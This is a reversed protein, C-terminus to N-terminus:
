DTFWLGLMYLGTLRPGKREGKWIHSWLLLLPQVAAHHGCWPGGSHVPSACTCTLLNALHSLQILWLSECSFKGISAGLNTFAALKRDFVISPLPPRAQFEWSFWQDVMFAQSWHHCLSLYILALYSLVTPNSYQTGMPCQPTVTSCIGLASYHQLVTCVSLLTTNCCRMYVSCKLIYLQICYQLLTATQIWHATHLKKTGVKQTEQVTNLDIESVYNQLGGMLLTNNETLLLSHM